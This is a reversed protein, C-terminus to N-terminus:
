PRRVFSRLNAARGAAVSGLLPGHEGAPPGGAMSRWTRMDNLPSSSTIPRWPVDQFTGQFTQTSPSSSSGCSTTGDRTGDWGCSPTGDSCTSAAGTASDPADSSGRGGAQFSGLLSALSLTMTAGEGEDFHAPVPAGRPPTGPPTTAVEPVPPWPTRKWRPPRRRTRRSHDFHCYKCEAKSNCGTERAFFICPRCNGSRHLRSGVSWRRLFVHEDESLSEGQVSPREGGREDPGGGRAWACNSAEGIVREREEESDGLDEGAEWDVGEDLSLARSPPPAFFDTGREPAYFDLCREDESGHADETLDAWRARGRGRGGRRHQKFGPGEGRGPSPCPTQSSTSPTRGGASGPSADRASRLHLGVNLPGSRM